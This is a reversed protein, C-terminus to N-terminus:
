NLDSCVARIIDTDEMGANRCAAVFGGDPSICPNANIEMIYINNDKDMRLDIRAYGRLHFINWCKLATSKVTELIGRSLEPDIDRVTNKYQFTDEEWKAKYSVIKPMGDPYDKFVIEAPHLVGPGAEGSIMSINFERGEIYEEIAWKGCSKGKCIEPTKGNYIFVSEETIGVSGDEMVPKLIYRSGEKLAGANDLTYTGPVPIGALHMIEKAFTKNGTAFSAVSPCGTYRIGYHELVSPVFHIYEACGDVAEVLNFVFSYGSESVSLLEDRFNKTIGKKDAKYGLRVLNEEVFRVEDLVDEEDPTPNVSVENYIILCKDM